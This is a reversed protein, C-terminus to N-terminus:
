SEEKSRLIPLEPAVEYTNADADRPSKRYSLYQIPTSSNAQRVTAIRAASETENSRSKKKKPKKRAAKRNPIKKIELTYIRM